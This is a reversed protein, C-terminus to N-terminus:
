GPEVTANVMVLTLWADIADRASRAKHAPVTIRHRWTGDGDLELRGWSRVAGLSELERVLGRAVGEYRGRTEDDDGVIALTTGPPPDAALDVIRALAAADTAADGIAAAAARAEAFLVAAARKTLRAVDRAPPARAALYFPEAAGARTGELSVAAGPALRALWRLWGPVVAGPAAVRLAGDTALPAALLIAWGVSGFWGLGNKGLARREVFQRVHPWAAAFAAARDHARLHEVLRAADRPGAQAKRAVEDDGSVVTVDVPVGEVVGHMRPPVTPILAFGLAAALRPPDDESVLVDVDSAHAPAYVSSGYAEVVAGPAAVARVRALVRAAPSDPDVADTMAALMGASRGAVGAGGPM